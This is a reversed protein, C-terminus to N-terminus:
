KNIQYQIAARSGPLLNPKIWQELLQVHIPHNSYHEYDDVTQFTCSWCLLRNKGAPHQQGSELLLDVGLEYDQILAIENPLNLLGDQITQITETSTGDKFNFMVIHKILSMNRKTPQVGFTVSRVLEQQHHHYLPVRVFPFKVISKRSTL